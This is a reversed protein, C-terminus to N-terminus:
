SAADDFLAGVPLGVSRTWHPEAARLGAYDDRTPVGLTPVRVWTSLGQEIVRRLLDLFTAAVSGEWDPAAQAQEVLTRRSREIQVLQEGTVDGVILEMVPRWEYPPTELAIGTSQRHAAHNAEWLVTGYHDAHDVVATLVQEPEQHGARIRRTVALTILLDITDRNVIFARM